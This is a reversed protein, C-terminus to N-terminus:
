KRSECYAAITNMANLLEPPLAPHNREESTLLWHLDIDWREAIMVLLALSIASEGTEIRSYGSESMPALPYFETAMQDQTIGRQERCKKLRDGVNMQYRNKIDKAITKEAEQRPDLKDNRGKAKNAKELNDIQKHIEKIKDETFYM